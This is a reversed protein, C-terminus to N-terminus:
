LHAAQHIALFEAPTHYGLAQHPRQHNYEQEWARLAVQLPPLDLAGGYCEWFERRHTGNAREVHGNLKPSRPPLEYLAISNDQCAAEFGAMFESGGDVQIAQIPFPMRELLETLFATATGATACSRVDLVGYRSVVDVATFQHRVLGPLPRLAMTDVEILDGPQTARVAKPKRTAYPRQHRPHPRVRAVPAEVLVNRRKLDTLIRGIMSVSLRFGQRQLVVALKDKGWRPHTERAAQVADAQAVTWTHVRVRRPRSSRNELSVLNTPDYRRQWRYVTSRAVGFHRATASVSHHCRYDLVKLRLTAQRSLQPARPLRGVRPLRYRLCLSTGSGVRRFRRQAAQSYKAM